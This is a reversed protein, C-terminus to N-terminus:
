WEQNWFVYKITDKVILSNSFLNVITNSTLNVTINRLINRWHKLFNCTSAIVFNALQIRYWITNPYRMSTTYGRKKMGVLKTGYILFVHTPHGYFLISETLSCWKWRLPTSRNMGSNQMGRLSFANSRRDFFLRTRSRYPRYISPIVGYVLGGVM